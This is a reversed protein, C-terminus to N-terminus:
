THDADRWCLGHVLRSRITSALTEPQLDYFSVWFNRVTVDMKTRLPLDLAETTTTLVKPSASGCMRRDYAATVM